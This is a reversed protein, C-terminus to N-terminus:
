GQKVQSATPESTGALSGSAGPGAIGDTTHGSMFDYAWIHDPHEARRKWMAVIVFRGMRGGDEVLLLWVGANRGGKGAEGLPNAPRRMRHRVPRYGCQWTRYRGLYLQM